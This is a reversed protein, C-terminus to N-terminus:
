VFAALREALIESIRQPAYRKLDLQAQAALRQLSVREDFARRLQRRLDDPDVYAWRMDATLTDPQSKVEAARIPEVRCAVPLSNGDNMYDMNGGHATAVVLKGCAMAESIGLGWGESRHASVFCDGVRHLAFLDDEDLLENIVVVKRSSQLSPLSTNSKVILRVGGLPFLDEFARVLDEVGKRANTVNAITYFLMEGEDAGIRERMRREADANPEPVSVVHPVVWVPRGTEAMVDRCYTSCTWIEATLSLAFRYADPLRDTEWVSYAIVRKERLEPFARYYGPVSWPENHIIVLDAQAPTDVLRVGLRRFCDQFQLGAQRHSIYHSLLYCVNMM